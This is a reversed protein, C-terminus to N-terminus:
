SRNLTERDYFEMYYEIKIVARVTFAEIGELAGAGVHWYWTNTPNTSVLASYDTDDKVAQRSTGRIKATDMYMSIEGKSNGGAVGLVEYKNGEQEIVQAPNTFVNNTNSPTIFIFMADVTDAGVAKFTVKSGLVRYRRYLKDWQNFGLPQATSAALEPDFGSNGRYVISNIGTGSISGVTVFPLCVRMIDPCVQPSYGITIKNKADKWDKKYKKRNNRRGQVTLRKGNRM